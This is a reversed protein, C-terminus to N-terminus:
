SWTTRTQPVKLQQKKTQKNTPKKVQVMVVFLLTSLSFFSVYGFLLFLSNVTFIFLLIFFLCFVMKTAYVAYQVFNSYMRESHCPRNSLTTSASCRTLPKEEQEINIRRRMVDV